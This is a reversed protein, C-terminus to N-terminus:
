APSKENRDCGLWQTIVVLWPVSNQVTVWLQPLRDREATGSILPLSATSADGELYGNSCSSATQWAFTFLDQELVYEGETGPIM